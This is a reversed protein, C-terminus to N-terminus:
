TEGSAVSSPPLASLASLPVIHFGQQQALDLIRGTLELVHEVHSPNAPSKEYSDFDHMLVVGGGRAAIEAVVDTIPRRAWSDRSDITWWGYSLGRIAGQFLGAVTLKGFPPRFARIDGGFKELTEIGTRVDRAARWPLVKWANSHDHTHSGADHGAAIVARLVQPNRSANRGLAYFTAKANRSKLLQLLRPTLVEGPGDDYTLVIARRSRCLAALRKEALTRLAFPALFWLAALLLLVLVAIVAAALNM